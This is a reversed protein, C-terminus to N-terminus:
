AQGGIPMKGKEFRLIQNFALRRLPGGIAISVKGIARRERWIGNIVAKNAAACGDCWDFRDQDLVSLFENELLVGPAHRAYQEDFAIKYGFAGPPTVFTSLMAVPNGDLHLALRLLRGRKAAGTLGQTFIAAKAAQQGMASGQEGKWGSMELALFQSCWDAIDTADDQWVFRVEGLEALRNMRRRLDKRKNASLASARYADAELDSSLIARDQRQVIWGKRGQVDLVACLAAFLPGDLSMDSLHLFMAAGANRDAWGLASHWFEVERGSAVLPVGLFTNDHLWTALHPVPKGYYKAPRALPLIGALRDDHEFAFCACIAERITPRM